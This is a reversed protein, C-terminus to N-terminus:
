NSRCVDLLVSMYRFSFVKLIVSCQHQKACQTDSAYLIWALPYPTSTSTSINTSTSSSISKATGAAIYTVKESVALGNQFLRGELM